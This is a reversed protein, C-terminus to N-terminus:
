VRASLLHHGPLLGGRRRRPPIQDCLFKFSRPRVDDRVGARGLEPRYPRDMTTGWSAGSHPQEAVGLLFRIAYFSSPGRVFMMACALVGWSLAIRGIWRRAGVRALILNSPLASSSDSRM